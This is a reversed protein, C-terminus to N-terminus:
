TVQQEKPVKSAELARSPGSQKRDTMGAENQVMKRKIKFLNTGGSQYSYMLRMLFSHRRKLTANDFRIMLM